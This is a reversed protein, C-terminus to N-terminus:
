ENKGENKGSYAIAARCLRNHAEVARARGHKFGSSYFCNSCAVFYVDDDRDDYAKSATRGGGCFPCALPDDVEDEAESELWELLCQIGKSPDVQECQQCVQYKCYERFAKERADVTKYKECNKMRINRENCM